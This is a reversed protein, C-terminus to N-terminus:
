QLHHTANSSYSSAHMSLFAVFRFLDLLFGLPTNSFTASLFSLQLLVGLPTNALINRFGRGNGVDDCVSAWLRPSSLHLVYQEFVFRVYSSFVHPWRIIAFETGPHTPISFNLFFVYVYQYKYYAFDRISNRDM